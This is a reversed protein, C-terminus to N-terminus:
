SNSFNPFFRRDVWRYSRHINLPFTILVWGNGRKLIILPGWYLLFLHKDKNKGRAHM